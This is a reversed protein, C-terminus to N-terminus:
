LERSNLMARGQNMQSMMDGVHPCEAQMIIHCMAGVHPYEAQMHSVDSRAAIVAKM